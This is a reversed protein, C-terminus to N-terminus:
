RAVLTSLCNSQVLCDDMPLRLIKELDFKCYNPPEGFGVVAVYGEGVNLIYTGVGPSASRDKLAAVHAQDDQLINM